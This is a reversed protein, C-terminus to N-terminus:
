WRITHFLPDDLPTLNKRAHVDRRTSRELISKLWNMIETALDPHEKGFMSIGHGANKYVVIRKEVGPPVQNYLIRNMQTNNRDDESTAFFVAQHTRLKKISAESDIRQSNIGGSLLVAAKMKPHEALFKSSLSAGISAGVLFQHELDFGNSKLFQSAAELDLISQRHEANSFTRYGDPGGSSQGRGRLTVAISAFGGEKLVQAFDRYRLKTASMSPVLIGAYQAGIVSVSDGVIRKGDQTTLTVTDIGTEEIKEPLTSLKAEVAGFLGVVMFSCLTMALILSVKKKKM